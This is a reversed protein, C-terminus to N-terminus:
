NVTALWLTTPPFLCFLVVLLRDIPLSPSAPNTVFASPAFMSVPGFIYIGALVWGWEPSRKMGLWSATGLLALSLLPVANLVVVSVVASANQHPVLKVIMAPLWFSLGGIAIWFVRDKNPNKLPFRM